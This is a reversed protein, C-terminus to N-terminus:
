MIHCSNPNEDSFLSLAGDRSVGSQPPNELVITNGYGHNRLNQTKGITRQPPPQARNYTDSYPYSSRSSNYCHGRSSDCSLSGGDRCISPQLQVRPANIYAGHKKHSYGSPTTQADYTHRDMYRNDKGFNQYPVEERSRGPYTSNDMFHLESSTYGQRQYNYNTAFSDPYSCDEM